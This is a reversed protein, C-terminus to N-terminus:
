VGEIVVTNSTATEHRLARAESYETSDLWRKAQESNEFQLIVLRAPSWGGELTETKGGRALYKGGYLEVAPAALEKYNEYRVTDTVKIDLIVYATMSLEEIKGIYFIIGELSKLSYYQNL